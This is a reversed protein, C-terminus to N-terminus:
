SAVQVLNSSRISADKQKPSSLWVFLELEGSLLLSMPLEKFAALWDRLSFRLPSSEEEVRDPAAVAALRGRFADNLRACRVFRVIIMTLCHHKEILALNLNELEDDM